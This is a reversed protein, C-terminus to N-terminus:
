VPVVMVPSDAHAIVARAMSGLRPKMVPLGGHRGVVLLDSKEAADVLVDVPWDHRVDVEVAVDPYESGIEKAQTTITAEDDAIWGAENLLLVDYAAPLRWAHVVRV